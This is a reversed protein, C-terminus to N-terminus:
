RLGRRLLGDEALRSVTEDDDEETVEEGADVDDINEDVTEEEEQTEAPFLV